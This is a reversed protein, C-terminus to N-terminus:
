CSSREVVCTKDSSDEVDRKAECDKVMMALLAATCLDARPPRPGPIKVPPQTRQPRPMIRTANRSQAALLFAPLSRHSKKQIVRAMTQHIADWAHKVTANYLPIPLWTLAKFYLSIKLARCQTQIERNTPMTPPTKELNAM